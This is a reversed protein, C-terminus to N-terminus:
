ATHRLGTEREYEESLENYTLFVNSRLVDIAADFEGREIHRIIEEQCQISRDAHERSSYYWVELRTIQTRLDRLMDVLRRNGSKQCIADHFEAKCASVAEVDDRDRAARLRDTIARLRAIDERTLRPLALRGATLELASVIPYLELLDALSNSPVRFGHHPIRELFGETALRGLAERVPTRSVGLARSVEQERVFEGPKLSRELIRARVAHYVQEALTRTRITTWHALQM